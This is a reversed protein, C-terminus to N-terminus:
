KRRPRRVKDVVHGGGGCGSRRPGACTWQVVRPGTSHLVVSAATHVEKSHRKVATKRVTAKKVTKKRGKSWRRGKAAAKKGAKKEHAAKAAGHLVRKGKRKGLGRPKKSAKKRPKRSAKKVALAPHELYSRKKPAM